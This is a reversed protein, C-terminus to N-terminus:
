LASKGSKKIANILGKVLLFYQFPMTLLNVVISQQLLMAVLMQSYILALLYLFVLPFPLLFIALILGLSVAVSYAILSNRNKFSKEIFHELYQSTSSYVESVDFTLSDDGLLIECSKQNSIEVEPYETDKFKEFWKNAKYSSAEAIIMPNKTIVGERGRQTLYKVISAQSLWVWNITTIQLRNWFGQAYPKPYITLLSLSKHQMNAIANAVLQGDVILNSDIFIIYQGKTIQSLKEFAYYKRNWGNNIDNGNFLRFRKDGAAFQSIVDVTKDTSQDNFILVEFDPHTQKSLGVLLNGIVKEANQAYVLVSVFTGETPIGEPLFPRKFYNYLVVFSRYLAFFLFPLVIYFGLM